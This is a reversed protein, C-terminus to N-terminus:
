RAARRCWRTRYVGAHDAAPEIRCGRRWSTSPAPPQHDCRPQRLRAGHPCAHGVSSSSFNFSYPATTDNNVLTAGDYFEVKSIRATRTSAARRLTTTDARPSRRRAPRVAVRDAVPQRRRRRGRDRQRHQLEDGRQPQRRRHGAASAHGGGDLHLQVHVPRQTRPCCRRGDYFDVRSVMGDPDAAAATLAATGGSAISTAVSTLM